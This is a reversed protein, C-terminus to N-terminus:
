VAVVLVLRIFVACAYALLNEGAFFLPHDIGIPDNTLLSLEYGFMVAAHFFAPEDHLDGVMIRCTCKGHVLLANRRAHPLIYSLALTIIRMIHQCRLDQKATWRAVRQPLLKQLRANLLNHILDKFPNAKMGRLVTVAYASWLSSLFNPPSTLCDSVQNPLSTYHFLTPSRIQQNIYPSDLLDCSNDCDANNTDFHLSVPLSLITVRDEIDLRNVVRLTRVQGKCREISYKIAIFWM